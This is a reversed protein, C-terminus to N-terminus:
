IKYQYSFQVKIMDHKYRTSIFSFKKVIIIFNYILKIQLFLFFIEM